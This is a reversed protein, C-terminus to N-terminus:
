WGCRKWVASWLSAKGMTSANSGRRSPRAPGAPRMSYLFTNAVGDREHFTRELVPELGASRAVETCIEWCRPFASSQPARILYVANAERLEDRCRGAFAASPVAAFECGERVPLRLRSLFELSRGLGWDMAVVPRGAYDRELTSAVDYISDSWIGKGGSATFFRLLGVNTAVHNALIAALALCSAARIWRSRGGTARGAVLGDALMTALLLWTLPVIIFLYTAGIGSPSVTSLPLVILPVLLVLLRLALAERSGPSASAAGGRLGASRWATYLAALLVAYSAFPVGSPGLLTYGDLVAAFDRVQFSLNALFATNDHGSWTHLANRLLNKVVDGTALNHALFPLLGLILAAAAALRVGPPISRLRVRLRSRGEVLLAWLAIGPLLWVFLIKTTIGLGLFLAAGVLSSATGRRWWRVLLLLMALAIPLIPATWNAGARSWWIFAPSTGCLLVAIAATRDDFWSRGAVVLLLLTLVGIALQGIRLSEVSVGFIEFSILAVYASTPGIHPHIMLPWRRGFLAVSGACSPPRGQLSELIPVADFVEDYQPGPLRLNWTGVLVLFSAALVLAVVPWRRFGRPAGQLVPRSREGSV